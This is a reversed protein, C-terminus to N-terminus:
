GRCLAPSRDGGATRGQVARRQARAWFAVVIRRGEKVPKLTPTVVGGRGFEFTPSSVPIRLLPRDGQVTVAVPAEAAAVAPATSVQAVDIASASLLLAAAAGRLTGTM